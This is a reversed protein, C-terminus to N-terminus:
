SDIIPRQILKGVGTRGISTKAAMKGVQRVCDVDEPASLQATVLGPQPCPLKYVRVARHRQYDNRLKPLALHSRSLEAYRDRRHLANLSEHRHSNTTLPQLAKVVRIQRLAPQAQRAAEALDEWTWNVFNTDSAAWFPKDRNIFAVPIGSPGLNM